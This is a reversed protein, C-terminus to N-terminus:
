TWARRLAAPLVDVGFDTLRGDAIIGLDAWSAIATDFAWEIRARDAKPITTTVEPCRNVLDVMGAGDVAVGPGARVLGIVAGLWDAWELILVADREAPGLPALDVPAVLAAVEVVADSEESGTVGELARLLIELAYADDDPDRPPAQPVEDEVLVPPDIDVDTLDALRRLLLRGNAVASLTPRTTVRLAAICRTALAAPGVGESDIHADEEHLADLLDGPGVIVEGITEPAGPVLDVTIVHHDDAADVFRFAVSESGGARLAWAGECRSTGIATAWSPATGPHDISPLEDHLGALAALATAARDGGVEALTDCLIAPSVGAEAALSLVDSAWAEARAADLGAIEDAQELVVAALEDLEEASPSDSRDTV